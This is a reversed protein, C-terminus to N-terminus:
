VEKFKGQFEELSIQLIGDNVQSYINKSNKLIEQFNSDINANEKLYERTSNLVDKTAFYIRMSGKFKPISDIMSNLSNYLLNSSVGELSDKDLVIYIAFGPDGKTKLYEEISMNSNKSDISKNTAGVKIAFSGATSKLSKELSEEVKASVKRSVYEDLMYAGDKDIEAKFKLDPNDKPSCIATFTSNTLTGWRGGVSYTVFEENYKEKLMKEATKAEKPKKNEKRSCGVLGLMSTLLIFIAGLKFTKSICKKLEKRKKM